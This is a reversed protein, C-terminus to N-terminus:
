LDPATAILASMVAIGGLAAYGMAEALRRVRKRPPDPQPTRTQTEIQPHATLQQLAVGEATPGTAKKNGSPVANALQALNVTQPQSPLGAMPVISDIEPEPLDFDAFKRKQGCYAAQAQKLGTLNENFTSPRSVQDASQRLEDCFAMRDVIMQRSQAASDSAAHEVTPASSSPPAMDKAPSLGLLSPGEALECNDDLIEDLLSDSSRPRNPESSHQEVAVSSSGVAFIETPESSPEQYRLAPAFTTTPTRDVNTTAPSQDPLSASPENVLIEVQADETLDITPPYLHKEPTKVPQFNSQQVLMASRAVGGDDSDSYVDEAQVDDSIEEPESEDPVTFTNTRAKNLPLRCGVHALAYSKYHSHGYQPPGLVISSIQVESPHFAKLEKEVPAGFKLVDGVQIRKKTWPPLQFGNLSTGHLSGTDRISVLQM